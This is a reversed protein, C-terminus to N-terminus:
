YIKFLTRFRDFLRIFIQKTQSFFDDRVQIDTPQLNTVGPFANSIIISTTENVDDILTQSLGADNISNLTAGVTNTPGPPPIPEAREVFHVTKNQIDVFLFRISLFRNEFQDDYQM